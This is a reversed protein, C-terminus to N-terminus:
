DYINLRTEDEIHAECSMMKLEGKKSIYVGAGWRFRTLKNKEFKRSHIKTLEITSANKSNLSYLDIVDKDASNTTMGAMYLQGSADKFLNINQYSLWDDDVWNSKNVRKIDITQILSFFAVENYLDKKEIKYFDLHKTDWDGVVVLLDNDIEVVGVCGATARKAVGARSITKLPAVPIKEPNEIEYILVKSKDKLSNDEIGIAMFGNSIQFGGAHKFPKDLFKNISVVEGKKGGKMVAFYSHSDSSGSVFYYEQRKFKIYQVGQLHGGKNNVKVSNSFSIATPKADVKDISEILENGVKSNGQAFTNLAFMVCGM